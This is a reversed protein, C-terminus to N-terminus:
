TSDPKDGCLTIVINPRNPSRGQSVHHPRDIDLGGEELLREAAVLTDLSGRKGLAGGSVFGNVGKGTRPVFPCRPLGFRLSTLVEDIPAQNESSHTRIIWLADAHEQLARQEFGVM